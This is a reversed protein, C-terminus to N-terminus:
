DAEKIDGISFQETQRGDFEVRDSTALITDVGLSNSHKFQFESTSVM